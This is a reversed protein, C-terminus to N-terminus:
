VERQGIRVSGTRGDSTKCQWEIRPGNPPTSVGQYIIAHGEGKWSASSSATDFWIVVALRDGWDGYVAETTGIVTAGASTPPLDGLPRTSCGLPTLLGGLLLVAAATRRLGTM